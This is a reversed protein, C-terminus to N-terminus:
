ALSSRSKVRVSSYPPCVSSTVSGASAADKAGSVLRKMPGISPLRHCNPSISLLVKEFGIKTCMELGM